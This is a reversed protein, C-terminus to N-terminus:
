MRIPRISWEDAYGGPVDAEELTEKTLYASAGAVKMQSAVEDSQNVSLGIGIVHPLMTKIWRTADVGNMKPMHMDMLIVDPRLQQAPACAQVGNEAEGIVVFGESSSILTRLRQSLLHHDDVVLVHVPEPFARRGNEFDSPPETKM